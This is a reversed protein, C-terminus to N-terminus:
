ILNVKHYVRRKELIPWHLHPLADSSHVINATLVINPTRNRLRQLRNQDQQLLSCWVVNCYDLVPLIITNYVM